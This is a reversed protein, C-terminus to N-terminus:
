GDVDEGIEDINEMYQEIIKKDDIKAMNTIEKLVKASAKKLLYSSTYDIEENYRLLVDHLRRNLAETFMANRDVKEAEELEAILVKLKNKFSLIDIDPYTLNM